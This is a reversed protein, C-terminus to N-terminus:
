SQHCVPLDLIGHGLFQQISGAKETALLFWMMTVTAQHCFVQRGFPSIDPNRMEHLLVDCSAGEIQGRTVRGEEARWEASIMSPCLRNNAQKQPIGSRIRDTVPVGM